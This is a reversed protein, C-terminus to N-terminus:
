LHQSHYTDNKEGQENASELGNVKFSTAITASSKNVPAWPRVIASDSFAAAASSLILVPWLFQMVLPRLKSVLM